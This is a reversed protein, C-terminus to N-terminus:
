GALYDYFNMMFHTDPDFISFITEGMIELILEPSYNRMLDMPAMDRVGVHEPRPTHWTQPVPYHAILGTFQTTIALSEAGVVNHLQWILGTFAEPMAIPMFNEVTAMMGAMAGVSEPVEIGHTNSLTLLLSNLLAFPSQGPPMSGGGVGVAGAIFDGEVYYHAMRQRTEPSLTLMMEVTHANFIPASFAVVRGINEELGMNALQYAAVYALYGGLSHGTIYIRTDQNLLTGELTHLFATLSGVHAHDYGALSRFNYWWTGTQTAIANDLDGYSGRFSLVVGEGLACAYVAASFGTAPDHHTDTLYWDYMEEAFSFGYANLTGPRGVVHTVFPAYHLPTFEPSGPRLGAENFDFPFFAMHAFLALQLDTPSLYSGVVEVPPETPPETEPETPPVTTPAPTTPATTTPPSTTVPAVTTEEAVLEGATDGGPAFNQWLTFGVVAMIGIAACLVSLRKIM